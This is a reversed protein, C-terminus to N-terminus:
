LRVRLTLHTGGPGPEARLSLDDSVDFDLLHASIYADLVQLTYVAGAVVFAIDRSGRADDRRSRLGAAGVTEGDSALYAPLLADLDTDCVDRDPVDLCGAYLAARRLRTTRRQAIVFYAVSGGVAAVAVPAKVPQGVYVQGWGPVLLSRRLAGRPTRSSDAAIDVSEVYPPDTDLGRVQMTDPEVQASPAGAFAVMLGAVGVALRGAARTM